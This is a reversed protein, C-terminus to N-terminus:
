IRASSAVSDTPPAARTIMGRAQKLGDTGASLLDGFSKGSRRMYYLGGLAALAFLARTINRNSGNFAITKM